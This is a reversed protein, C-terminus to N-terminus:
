SILVFDINWLAALTQMDAPTLATSVVTHHAGGERLWRKAGEAHNPKLKWMIRAVPLKPMPEPQKVLEIKAVIMKFSAGTDILSVAIGEGTIGDFVLRAPPAKGGIGLPHVEIAPKNVAFSPSVELMHAGLVLEEGPTFDYTYDEMFGTSGARGEAMKCMVATMASTKWDGEGGYGFGEGLLRQTALGPLQKMGHLDQFTNTFASIGNDAFFKRLAIEYKAQERVAAIDTTNFMYEARYKDMLKDVDKDEVASIEAVLDGVAWTNVEWGFRIQAEVKDGETVAVERMNDGFRAVKLNKSFDYAIAASQWAFIEDLVNKHKYYGVAIANNLNLRMCIHGFERDGHAAQNLNMFDMDISDYPLKENYQTHLHLMPKQLAKLGKIWMKAPSFTHCWIIVGVVEDRYNVEKAMEFGQASNKVTGYFRVEASGGSASLYSAIEKGNSDVQKLTEEGYLDQSGTVFYVVKKKM